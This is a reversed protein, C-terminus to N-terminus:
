KKNATDLIMKVLNHIDTYADLDYINKGSDLDTKISKNLKEANEIAFKMKEKLHQFIDLNKEYDKFHNKKIYSIIDNCKGFPRTTYEFHLLVWYEFCKSSFAIKVVSDRADSFAKPINPHQDKDFVLWVEDYPNSEKKAKKIKEKAEKLLGVPTYDNPHSVEISVSSLSRKLIPDKKFGQFYFLSSKEDECLILIRKNFKM